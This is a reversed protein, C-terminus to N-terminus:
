RPLGLRARRNPRARCVFGELMLSPLRAWPTLSCACGPTRRLDCETFHAERNIPEATYGFFRLLRVTADAQASQAPSAPGTREAM